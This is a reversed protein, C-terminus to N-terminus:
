IYQGGTATSGASNGPFYNAGGGNTSTVGNLQVIYRAGTAGSGSFTNGNVIQVGSYGCNSFYGTYAPTGSLTITKSFARLIGCTVANFHDLAGGSITYNATCLVSGGDDARVQAGGCAGFDLGGFNIHGNQTAQIGYAAGTTTVKFDKLSLVAGTKAVVAATSGTSLVVNTPTTANGQITVAGSGLFPGAAIVGGSYTGDAVQITVNYINLDLGYVVDVAKQVTLFAGGSTNALGNNSDSGDTRVYYTRASSLIERTSAGPITVIVAGGTNTATVGSGVFDLSSLATTLNTGEDKATIASGFNSVAVKKSTGSQVIEVLETGALPTTAATLDTIKKAM